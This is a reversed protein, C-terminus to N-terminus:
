QEWLLRAEELSEADFASVTANRVREKVQELEREEEIMNEYSETLQKGSFSIDQAYAGTVTTSILVVIALLQLM